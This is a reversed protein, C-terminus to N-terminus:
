LATQLVARAVDPRNFFKNNKCVRSVGSLSTYLGGSGPKEAGPGCDTNASCGCFGLQGRASGSSGLQGSGGAGADKM